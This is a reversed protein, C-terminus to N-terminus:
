YVSIQLRLVNEKRGCRGVRWRDFDSVRGGRVIGLDCDWWEGDKFERVETESASEWRM